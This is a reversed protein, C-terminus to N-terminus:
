TTAVLELLERQIKLEESDLKSSIIKEILEKAYDNDNTGGSLPASVIKKYERSDNRGQESSVMLTVIQGSLYDHAIGSQLFKQIVPDSTAVTTFDFELAEKITTNMKESTGPIVAEVRNDSYKGLLVNVLKSM